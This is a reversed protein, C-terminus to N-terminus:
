MALEPPMKTRTSKLSNKKKTNKHIKKNAKIKNHEAQQKQKLITELDDKHDLFLKSFCVDQLFSYNNTIERKHTTAQPTKACGDKKCTIL